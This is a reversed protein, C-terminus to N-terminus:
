QAEELDLRMWIRLLSRTWWSSGDHAFNGTTDRYFSLQVYLRNVSDVDAEGLMDAWSLSISGTDGHAVCGVSDLGTTDQSPYVLTEVGDYVVSPDWTIELDEGATHVQAGEWSPFLDTPWPPTQVWDNIVQPPIVADADTLELSWSTELWDDVDIGDTVLYYINSSSLPAAWEGLDPEALYIYNGMDGATYSMDTGWDCDGPVPANGWYTQEELIPEVFLNEWQVFPGVTSAYASTINIIDTDHVDISARTFAQHTGSADPYYTFAESLITEVGGASLVVDVTDEGAPTSVEVTTEDVALLTASEEGFRVEDVNALDEGTITVTSGGTEPGHPPDVDSLEPEPVPWYATATSQEGLINTATITFTYSDECALAEDEVMWRSLGGEDYELDLLALWPAAGEVDPQLALDTVENADSAMVRAEFLDEFCSLGVDEIVPPDDTLEFDDCGVAISATFILFSCRQVHM